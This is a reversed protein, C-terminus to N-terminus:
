TPTGERGAGLSRAEEIAARLAARPGQREAHAYISSGSPTDFSVTAKYKGTWTQEVNVRGLAEAEAWLADLTGSREYVGDAGKEFSLMDGM